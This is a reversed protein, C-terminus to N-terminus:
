LKFSSNNCATIMLPRYQPWHQKVGEDIVLIIPCFVPESTQLHYWHFTITSVQITPRGNLLVEDLQFFSSVFRKFNLLLFYM